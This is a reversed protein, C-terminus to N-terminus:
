AVFLPKNLKVQIVNAQLWSLMNNDTEVDAILYNSLFIACGGWVLSRKARYKDTAVFHHQSGLWPKSYNRFTSWDFDDFIVTSCGNYWDDLNITGCWYIASPDLSKAWQTKGYRSPSVLWLAKPRDPRPRYFSESLWNCLGLPLSFERYLSVSGGDKTPYHHGAFATLRGFNLIYDRPSIRRVSELFEDKTAAQLSDAWKPKGEEPLSGHNLFSGDKRIYALVHSASRASQINPHFVTGDPMIIDFISQISTRYPKEFCVLAHLHLGGDEHREQAICSGAYDPFTRLLDQLVLPPADCRPYTLFFKKANLQFPMSKQLILTVEM